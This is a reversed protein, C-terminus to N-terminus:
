CTVSLNRLLFLLWLTAGPEAFSSRRTFLSYLRCLVGSIQNELNL